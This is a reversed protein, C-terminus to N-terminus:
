CFKGINDEKTPMQSDLSRKVNSLAKRIESIESKIVLTPIKSIAQYQDLESKSFLPYEFKKWVEKIVFFAANMKNDVSTVEELREISELKFGWAGGRLSTGNLYNGVTLAVELIHHFRYNNRISSFGDMLGQLKQELEYYSDEKHSSFIMAKIRDAYSPVEFLEKYFQEPNGLESVDGSYM